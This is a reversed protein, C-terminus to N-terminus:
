LGASERMKQIASLGSIVEHTATADGFKVREMLQAQDPKQPSEIRPNNPTVKAKAGIKSAINELKTKMEAKAEDTTDTLNLGAEKAIEVVNDPFESLVANAATDLAIKKDTAEKTKNLEDLQAQRQEALTRWEEKQELEKQQAELKEKEAADLKNRLMNREMELQERVKREAALDTNDQSPASVTPTPLPTTPATEVKPTTDEM